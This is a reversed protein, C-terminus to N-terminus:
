RGGRRLLIYAIPMVAIALIAEFGPPTPTPTPKEDTTSPATPKPTVRPALTPTPTAEVETEAPPIEGVVETPTVTATRAVSWIWTHMDSLGTTTNTAIASVKWSGIDAAKTFSAETVSENTQVETGNIQWSIDAIQGVSINFTRSEGATDNVVAEAPKWATINSSVPTVEENVEEAADEEDEEDDKEEVAIKVEAGHWNSLIIGGTTANVLEENSLSLETEKGEKGKVKFEIETLYGSGSLSEGIPLMIIVMVTDTDVFRWDFIPVDEGDIEGENVDSVKIVSSDFSLDFQASNLDTVDDVDITAVFTAREEVYEPANITVEVEQAAVIVPTVALSTVAIATLILLVTIDPMSMKM